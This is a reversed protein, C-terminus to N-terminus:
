GEPVIHLELHTRKHSRCIGNELFDHLKKPIQEVIAAFHLNLGNMSQVSQTHRTKPERGTFYERENTACHAALLHGLTEKV